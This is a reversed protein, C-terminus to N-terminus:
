RQLSVLMLSSHGEVKEQSLLGVRYVYIYFYSSVQHIEIKKPSLICTHTYTATIASSQEMLRDCKIVIQPQLQLTCVSYDHLCNSPWM